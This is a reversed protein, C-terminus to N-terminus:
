RLRRLSHSNHFFVRVPDNLPIKTGLVDLFDNKMLVNVLDNMLINMHDNMLVNVLDNVLVNLLNNMLIDM